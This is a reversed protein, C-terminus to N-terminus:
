AEGGARQFQESRELTYRIFDLTESVDGPRTDYRWALAREILAAWPEGLEEQAWRAAAPKSALTGHRLTYLARCMTLVAFAQYERTRLRVPDRLQESWWGRLTGLVARRLDDPSVPDILTKPDPGAVVVGHERIIHRQIVWDSDQRAVYFRGENITPYTADSPEYRRIAGRPVYAGELKAAWKLGGAAIREHLAELASVTEAAVEDRTVVSFDVDSSKPDFDGSALSGYLYMGVFEDGLITRAGSLLTHLVMNVDTHPTPHTLEAPM